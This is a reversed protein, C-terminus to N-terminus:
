LGGAMEDDLLELGVSHPPRIEHGPLRVEVDEVAEVVGRDLGDHAPLLATGAVHGHGLPPHGPDGADGHDGAPRPRRVDHGGDVGGVLIRGREDDEDAEDGGGRAPTLRELLEVKGRPESRRRLLDEDEVIGVLGGLHDDIGEM